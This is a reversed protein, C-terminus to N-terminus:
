CMNTLFDNEPADFEHIQARELSITVLLEYYHGPGKTNLSCKGKDPDELIGVELDVGQSNPNGYRLDLVQVETWVM